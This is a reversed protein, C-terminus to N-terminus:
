TSKKIRKRGNIIRKTEMDVTTSVIGVFVSSCQFYSSVRHLKSQANETYNNVPLYMNRGYYFSQNFVPIESTIVSSVFEIKKLIYEM